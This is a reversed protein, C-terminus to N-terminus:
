NAVCEVRCRVDASRMCIMEVRNVAIVRWQQREVDQGRACLRVCSMGRALWPMVLKM